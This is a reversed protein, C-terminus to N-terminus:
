RWPSERGPPKPEEEAEDAETDVIMGWHGLGAVLGTLEDATKRRGAVFSVLYGVVLTALLGPPMPWFAGLPGDWPWTGALHHGLTLWTAVAGGAVMGALAGPGTSRRTFFGLLFVGLLPGAAVGVLAVMWGFVDVASGAALALVVVLVGLVAVLPRVLPLEDTQDLEEPPKGRARALRAEGWGLRRHFDVLLVTALGVLGFGVAPVAAAMLGGLVVGAAGPGVHRDIFRALLEDRGRRLRREGTVPHRTALRDIVIRGQGDIMDRTDTMPRDTNPDLITGSAILGDITEMTIPTDSGVLPEGTQPDVASNVIWNPRIETRAHDHYVALLGVGVYVAAALVLSFIVSGTVLSRKVAEDEGATLLRQVTSQDAILFFAPVLVLFPVAAWASWTQSGDWRWDALDSRGLDAATALVQRPGENLESGFAWIVLFVGAVILVLGTLHAWLAAKMGGLTTCATVAGGMVVVAGLATWGDDPGLGIARLPLWLAGALWLMQWVVFVGAAASRTALDFRLELYEYISELELREYLPVASLWALPVAAWVLVPLALLKLGAGYAEEPGACYYVVGLGALALSSGALWWPVRRGALLFGGSTAQGRAAWVGLGVLVLLAVGLVVDDATALSLRM